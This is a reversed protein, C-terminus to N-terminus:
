CRYIFQVKRVGPKCKSFVSHQDESPLSSHLPILRFRGSRQGFIKSGQLQEYLTSIEAIGPLFVLIAGERPHSHEGEVIWELLFEILDYNIKECDMVALAKIVWTPWGTCSCM